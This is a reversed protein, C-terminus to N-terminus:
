PDVGALRLMRRNPEAHCALISTHDHGDAVVAPADIPRGDLERRLLTAQRVPGRVIELLGQEGLPHGRGGFDGTRGPTADAQTCDALHNALEVSGDLDLAM